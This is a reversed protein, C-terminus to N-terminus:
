QPATRESVVGHMVMGSAGAGVDRGIAAGVVVGLQGGREGRGLWLRRDGQPLRSCLAYGQSGAEQDGFSDELLTAVLAM